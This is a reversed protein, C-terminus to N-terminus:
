RRAGATRGARRRRRCMLGVVLGALALQEVGGAGGGASTCGGLFGSPPAGAEPDTPDAVDVAYVEPGSGRLSFPEPLGAPATEVVLRKPARM